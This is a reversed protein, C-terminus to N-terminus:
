SHRRKNQFYGLVVSEAMRFLLQVLSFVIHFEMEELFYPVQCFIKALVNESYM